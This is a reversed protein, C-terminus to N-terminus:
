PEARRFKTWYRTFARAAKAIPSPSPDGGCLEVITSHLRALAKDDLTKLGEALAVFNILSPSGDGAPAPPILMKDSV